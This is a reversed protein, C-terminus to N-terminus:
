CQPKFSLDAIRGSSRSRTDDSDGGVALEIVVPVTRNFRARFDAAFDVSVERWTGREGPSPEVVRIAGAGDMYPSSIWAGRPHSGGWVYFLVHGPIVRGARQRALGHRMREGLTASDPDYAFGLSVILDRDDGGRQGLDTAPITADDVRWRWSLCRHTAPDIRVGISLMSSSSDTVVRLGHAGDPEFRTPSRGRFEIPRWGNAALDPGTPLIGQASAALSLLALLAPLIRTTASM